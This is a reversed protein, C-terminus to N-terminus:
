IKLMGEAEKLYEQVRYKNIGLKLALDRLSLKKYGNFAYTHLIITKHPEPLQMVKQRIEMAKIDQLYEEMPDVNGQSFALDEM